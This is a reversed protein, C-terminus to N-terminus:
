WCCQLDTEKKLTQVRIKQVKPSLHNVVICEVSVQNDVCFKKGSFDTSNENKAPCFWKVASKLMPKQSNGLNKLIKTLFHDGKM